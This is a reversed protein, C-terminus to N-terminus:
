QALRLRYFRQAPSAPVNTVSLWDGTGPLPGNLPSWVGAALDDTFEVQYANGPFSPWTLAFLGAGLTAVGLNPPPGVTITFLQEASLPPVGNDTVRVGVVNTSPTQAPSPTWTFLGNTPDVTANALGGSDLSYTLTQPPLDADSAQLTFSLTQGLYVFQDGPAALVPPTNPGTNPAGPTPTLLFAISSGGDPYRGMSVDSTQQGFSVYDVVAGNTSFLAISAGDKALKFNVHLDASGASAQKDAWVLLFGRPAITYGAPIQFETSNTLSHALYCGTLDVRNTGYNYLEFWDSFKGGVPNTITHTNSAMWENIVLSLPPTGDNAARPTPDLFERRAFSQGDPFSGFSHDPGVNTYSIYDLVHAVGNTDFLTLALDGSGAALVFSTHLEGLSSLNTQGDAFVVQFKGPSIVVGTPFTWAGLNTYNNALCLGDLPVANTGPNYIELWPAAQGASNTIGTLNQPEVENLWLSPFAPLSALVTNAVGPSSSAPPFGGAWNGVRWNDQQPDIMQLSSGTGAAGAPWPLVSQYSVEAVVLDSATDSGPRVLALTQGIPSLSGSFSDFVPVRAGYASSFASRNAALVLFGNPGIFSGAPFTYALGSLEWGSLDFALNTSNNYLEVYQANPVAPQCMIENIVVQGVPSASGGAYVVSAGGSAGAVPQGKRDVGTVSLLNTGPSLPLIVRWTYVSTWTVPWEVGNIWVTKVGVPATGTLAVQNGGILTPSDVSFAYNALSSIQSAISSRAQALWTKIATTGEIGTLGNAM